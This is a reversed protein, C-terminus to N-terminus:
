ERRLRRGRPVVHVVPLDGTLTRWAVYDKNCSLRTAPGIDTAIVDHDPRVGRHHRLEDADESATCIDSGCWCLATTDPTEFLFKPTKSRPGLIRVEGDHVFLLRGQADLDACRVCPPAIELREGKGRGRARWMYSAVEVNDFLPFVVIEEGAFIMPGSLWNKRPAVVRSNHRKGIRWVAGNEAIGYPADGVALGHQQGLAAYRNLDGHEGTRYTYRGNGFRGLWYLTDGDSALGHLDTAEAIKEVTDPDLAVNWLQGWKILAAGRPTATM